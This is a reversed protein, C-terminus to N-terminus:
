HNAVIATLRGFELSSGRLRDGCERGSIIRYSLVIYNYDVGCSKGRVNGRASKTPRVIKIITYPSIIRQSGHGFGHGGFFGSLYM